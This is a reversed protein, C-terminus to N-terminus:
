TIMTLDLKTTAGTAPNPITRMGVLVYVDGTLNDRLRDDVMFPVITPFRGTYHVVDRPMGDARRRSNASQEVVSGVIATWGTVPTAVDADDGYADTTSGRLLTYTGTALPMTM